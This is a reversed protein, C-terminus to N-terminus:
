NIQWGEDSKSFLAKDAFVQGDNYVPRNKMFEDSQNLQENRLNLATGFPTLNYRWTFDVQKSKGDNIDQIGTIEVFQKEAVQMIFYSVGKEDSTEGKKYKLGEPTLDIYYSIYHFFMDQKDPLRKLNMFGKESLYQIDSTNSGGLSGMYNTEGRPFKDTITTPFNFKQIILEKAKERDLKSSCSTLIFCAIVLTIVASFFKESKM